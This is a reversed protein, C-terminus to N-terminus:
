QGVYVATALREAQQDIFSGTGSACPGNTNFYELEWGNGDHGIQSLATDQGGMSIVTRVGPHVHVAGLVQSIIEFEYLMKLRESFRKGHNGTFSVSVINESGFRAQLARILSAVHTEVKGLHRTYPVEYVIQKKEDIVIANISVSGADIGAYLKM